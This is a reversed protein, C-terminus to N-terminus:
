PERVRRIPEGTLLATITEATGRIHQAVDARVREESGSRIAEAWSLHRDLIWLLGEPGASAAMARRISASIRGRLNTAVEYLIRNSAARWFVEHFREDCRFVRDADGAHAADRMDDLIAAVEADLEANWRQMSWVAAQQEVLVRFDALEEVTQPSVESVFAGRRPLRLILGEEALRGFAERIAINSVGLQAALQRETLHEGPALAGSRIAERLQLAVEDSVSRVDLPPLAGDM